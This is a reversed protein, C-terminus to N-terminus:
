KKNKKKEKAARYKLYASDLARVFFVLDAEEDHNMEYHQAYRFIATIPIPGEGFGVSRESTLDFFADYYFEM